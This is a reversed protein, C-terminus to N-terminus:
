DASFTLWDAHSTALLVPATQTPQLIPEIRIRCLRLKSILWEGDGRRKIYEEEYYGYGVFGVGGAFPGDVMKVPFEVKDFMPWIARATDHGKFAIEPTHGQHVSSGSQIWKSLSHVFDDPGSYRRTGEFTATDAFLNRLRNWQKTDLYRFYRAKLEKIAERECIESYAMM